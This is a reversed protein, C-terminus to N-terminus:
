SRQLEGLAEAVELAHEDPDVKEWVKAVRGQPDILFTQRLVGEYERGFTHKKGWAGYQQIMKTSPDALLPFNLGYKGHFKGHSKVEDASVGLVTAGMEELRGKEDRFNCAEKTCGPTDDKPYFYLVVWRGRYDSLSHTKGDQDPLNFNPAADGPHVM